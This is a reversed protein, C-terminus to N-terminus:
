QFDGANLFKIKARKVIENKVPHSFRELSKAIAM